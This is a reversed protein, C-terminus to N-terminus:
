TLLVNVDFASIYKQRSDYVTIYWLMTYVLIYLYLGTHVVTRSELHTCILVYQYLCSDCVRKMEIISSGSESAPGNGTLRRAVARKVQEEHVASKKLATEVVTLGDLRPKGRGFLWLL